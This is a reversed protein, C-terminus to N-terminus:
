KKQELRDLDKILAEAAQSFQNDDRQIKHLKTRSKTLETQALYALALYWEADEVYWKQHSIVREFNSIAGNWDATKLRCIGAFFYDNTPYPNQTLIDEFLMLAKGYKEDRYLQYAENQLKKVQDLAEGRTASSRYQPTEFHENFVTLPTFEEKSHPIFVTILVLLSAAIGIITVIKRRNTRLPAIISPKAYLAERGHMFEDAHDTEINEDNEDFFHDIPLSKLKKLKEEKTTKAGSRRIGKTIINMEEFLAHFAEDDSLRKQVVEMQKDSLDGKLFREMLQIDETRIM